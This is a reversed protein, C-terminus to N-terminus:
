KILRYTECKLFQIRVAREAYARVIHEKTFMSTKKYAKKAREYVNDVQGKFVFIRGGKNLCCKVINNKINLTLKENEM